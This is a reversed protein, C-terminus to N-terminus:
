DGAQRLDIEAGPLAGTADEVAQRMESLQGPGRGSAARPPPARGGAGQRRTEGRQPFSLPLGGGERAEPAPAKRSRSPNGGRWPSGSPSRARAQRPEQRKGGAIRWGAPPGALISRGHGFHR